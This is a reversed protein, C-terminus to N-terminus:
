RLLDLVRRASRDAQALVATGVEALLQGRALAASEAAVDADRIRAEAALANEAAVALRTIRSSLRNDVAGLEARLTAVRGLALDVARLTGGTGADGVYVPTLAAADDATSTPGPAEGTLVLGGATALLAVESGLAAAAAADLRDLHEQATAAGTYDVSGLDFSRGGYEVTGALGAFSAAYAGSSLFDGAVTLRGAEPTARAAPVAPDVAHPVALGGPAGTYRPTLAAADDATSAPGPTEGTLVLGAATAVFPTVGGGLAAVVAANLRELHEQATGAGTHDVSSLDFSRGGYEVTGVLAAFRAAYAGASTFDGALTLRGAAPTSPEAAVAAAVAHPLGLGDTVDVASLGLGATDVGRGSLGIVVRLTDGADPGVQLLGDLGGDLVPVGHFATTGAIRDLEQKLQDFEARTAAVAAADLAGAGAAQVTLDRMRRLVATVGDLAGDAVRVLGLGDQANRVAQATGRVQARLGESVALGAADDAARTIRLGSSLRRLSTAVTQETRGLARHADLAAVHTTVGM